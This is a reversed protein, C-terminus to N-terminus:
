GAGTVNRNHEEDVYPAAAVHLPHGVPFRHRRAGCVACERFLAGDYVGQVEVLFMLQGCCMAARGHTNFTM